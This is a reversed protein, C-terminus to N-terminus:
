PEEYTYDHVLFIYYIHAHYNRTIQVYIRHNQYFAFFTIVAKIKVCPVGSGIKPCNMM